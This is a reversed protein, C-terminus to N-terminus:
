KWETMISVGSIAEIYISEEDGVVFCVCSDDEFRAVYYRLNQFAETSEALRYKEALINGVMEDRESHNLETMNEKELYELADSHGTFKNTEYLKVTRNQFLTLVKDYQRKCDESIMSSKEMNSDQNEEKSTDEVKNQLIMHIKGQLFGGNQGIDLRDIVIGAVLICMFCAAIVTWIIRSRKFPVVNERVEEHDQLCITEEKLKSLFKKDPKILNNDKIYHEKFM